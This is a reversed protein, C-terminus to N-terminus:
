KAELNQEDLLTDRLQELTDGVVTTPTNSQLLLSITRLEILILQLLEQSRPDAVYSGGFADNPVPQVDGGNYVGQVDLVPKWTM